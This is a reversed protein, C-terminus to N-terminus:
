RRGGRCTCSRRHSDRHGQLHLWHALRNWPRRREREIRARAEALLAERAAVSDAPTPEAM